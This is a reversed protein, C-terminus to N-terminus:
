FFVELGGGLIRITVGKSTPTPTFAHKDNIFPIFRLITGTWIVNQMQVTCKVIRGACIPYTSTCNQITGFDATM